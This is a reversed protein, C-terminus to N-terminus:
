RAMADAKIMDAAKEAIMITPANTNGSVVNPMISADVVRLRELGRVKLRADVVALPDSDPGMKCTGVPHYQTDARNRIDAEMAAADNVDVPYFMKGRVPDFPASEMLSQQLQGGKLLVAMDREDSLFRPDIRPADRPDRSNLAVTGRSHPRLLDVHCSLGTGLHMKRAHDDVIALVMLLQLDPAPVDPSSKVFAGSCVFPSTLLGTRKGRWEFIGKLFATGAKLSLGFVDSRDKIRWSQVYDIHDQLNQGVGPLHCTSEIGLAQLQAADGIGSLQLLQPSGFAGGCILVERRATALRTAGGVIYEVGSAAGSEVVIRSSLAGTVVKLNPRGLNPTLYGKAASCREGNKQTAQYHFTGEQEGGNYDPNRRIQRLEAAEIFLEALPSQHNPYTVNLPGGQGHWDNDFQENHEAKKFYPLCEDFGWGSNGLREWEDYDWRNGRVYLMANISSSGGLVRGRPQYGKRGNLGPQPVTEYAYNNLKTPMMAVAGVPAQVIASQDSGGAELLCVTVNPDETLRGALVCGASGGGVIIYDFQAQEM